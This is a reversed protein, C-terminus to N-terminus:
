GFSRSWPFIMSHNVGGNVFLTFGSLMFFATMFVAGSKSLGQLIGYDCGLHITTHFMCVVLASVIRLVDLGVYRRKLGSYDM